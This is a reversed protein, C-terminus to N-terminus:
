RYLVKLNDFYYYRPENLPTYPHEGYEPDVSLDSTFYLKFYSASAERKMVGSFNIYIKNWRQPLAHQKDTPLVKVLPWRVITNSKQYLLGVFFTDNCKYDMELMCPTQDNFSNHFTMEEASSLYFDLSDPPLAVKASYFSHESRWAEAGSVRIPTTDSDALPVLSSGTEFDERWGIQLIDREYYEVVTNITDIMGETLTMDHYEKAKCFLYNSRSGRRGDIKIGPSVTVKCKGKALVPFTAPLEFCGVIQDNVYVWADSFNSTAAGYSAYDTSPDLTISDIHIYSPVTQSGNFKNCSALAVTAFVACGIAFLTVNRRM